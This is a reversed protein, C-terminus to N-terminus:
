TSDEAGAGAAFPRKELYKAWPALATGDVSGSEVAIANVGM